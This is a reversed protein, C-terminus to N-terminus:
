NCRNEKRGIRYAATPGIDDDGVAGNMYVRIEDVRVGSKGFVKDNNPRKHSARYTTIAINAGKGEHATVLSTGAMSEGLQPIRKTEFIIDHTVSDIVAIIPSATLPNTRRSM